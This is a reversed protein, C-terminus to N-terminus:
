TRIRGSALSLGHTEYSERYVPKLSGVTRYAAISLGRLSHWRTVVGYRVVALAFSALLTAVALMLNALFSMRHFAYGYSRM